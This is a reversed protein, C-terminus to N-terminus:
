EDLLFFYKGQAILGPNNGARFFNMVKVYHPILSSVLIYLVRSTGLYEPM